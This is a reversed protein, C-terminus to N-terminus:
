ILVDDSPQAAASTTTPANSPPQPVEPLPAPDLVPEPVGEDLAGAPDDVGDGSGRVGSGARACPEGRGNGVLRAPPGTGLRDAEDTATLRGQCNTRVRSPPRSMSSVNKTVPHVRNLETATVWCGEATVIATCPERGNLRCWAHGAMAWSM